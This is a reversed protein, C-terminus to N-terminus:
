RARSGVVVVDLVSKSDGSSEDGTYVFEVDLDGIGVAGGAQVHGVQHDASRRHSGGLM